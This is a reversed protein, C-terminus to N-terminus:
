WRSRQWTRVRINGVLAMNGFKLEQDEFQMPLGLVRHSRGGTAAARPACAPLTCSPPAACASAQKRNGLLDNGGQGTYTFTHGDNHTDADDQVASRAIRSPALRTVYASHM